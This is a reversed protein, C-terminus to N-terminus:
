SSLYGSDERFARAAAPSDELRWDQRFEGSDQSVDFWILGLLNSARLGRFLNAIAAVQNGTGPGAATESILVPKGLGTVIKLMPDFVRAFSDGPAAYYGDLGIWTVYDPGPWWADALGSDTGQANITWLWIVNDAGTQRFVDVVHQWAAIWTAPSVSKAGWPYWNGNPEHGFGIIVPRGYNVVATAYSRLYPDYKGAAIDALSVGFPEIQVAPTAGADYAQAAFASKFQENWSSYYLAINPQVGVAAQFQQVPAFSGPVGDEYVGLYHLPTPPLHAIAIKHHGPGSVSMAAPPRAPGPSAGAGATPNATAVVVTVVAATGAAATVAVALSSGHEGMTSVLQQALQGASSVASTIRRGFERIAQLSMAPYLALRPFRRISAMVERMARRRGLQDLSRRVIITRGDASALADVGDPLEDSQVIRTIGTPRAPQGRHSPRPAAPPPSTM